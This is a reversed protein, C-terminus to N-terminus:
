SNDQITSNTRKFNVPAFQDWSSGFGSPIGSTQTAPSINTSPFPTSTPGGFVPNTITINLPSPNPMSQIGKIIEDVDSKIQGTDPKSLKAPDRIFAILSAVPDVVNRFSDYLSKLNGIFNEEDKVATDQESKLKGNYEQNLKLSEDLIDQTQSIFKSGDVSPDISMTLKEQNLTDQMTNITNVFEDTQIQEILLSKEEGTLLDQNLIEQLAIDFKGQEHLSILRDLFAQLEEIQEIDRQNSFGEQESGVNQREEVESDETWFFTDGGGMDMMSQENRLEEEEKQARGFFSLIWDKKESFWNLIQSIGLKEGITKVLQVAMIAFQSFIIPIAMITLFLMQPTAIKAVQLIKDSLSIVSDPDEAGKEYDKEGLGDFASKGGSSKLIDEGFRSAGQLVNLEVDIGVKKDAM